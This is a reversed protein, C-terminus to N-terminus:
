NINSRFTALGAPLSTLNDRRPENLPRKSPSDLARRVRDEHVSPHSKGRRLHSSHHSTELYGAETQPRTISWERIMRLILPPLHILRNAKSWKGTSRSSSTSFSTSLLKILNITRGVPLVPFFRSLNAGTSRGIKTNSPPIFLFGKTQEHISYFSLKSESYNVAYQIKLISKQLFFFFFPEILTSLLSSRSHSISRIM